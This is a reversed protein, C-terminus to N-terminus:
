AGKGARFAKFARLGEAAPASPPLPGQRVLLGRVQDLRVFYRPASRKGPRGTERRLSAVLKERVWRRVTDVTVGVAEAAHGTTVWSLGDATIVENRM